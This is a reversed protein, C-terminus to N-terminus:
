IDQRTRISGLALSIDTNLNKIKHGEDCIVLDPGPNLLALRIISNAEKKVRGEATFGQDFDDPKESRDVRTGNLFNLKPRTPKKPQTARVLMRFMDYGILLVGGQNSWTEQSSRFEDISEIVNDYMFRVGGLQHPQLTHTLHTAVHIDPDSAPHGLVMFYSQKYSFVFYNYFELEGANVLLRGETLDVKELDGSKRRRRLRLQEIKYQEEM